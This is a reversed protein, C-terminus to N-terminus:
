NIMAQKFLTTCTAALDKLQSCSPSEKRSLHSINHMGENLFTRVTTLSIQLENLSSQDQKLQIHNYSNCGSRKAALLETVKERCILPTEKKM